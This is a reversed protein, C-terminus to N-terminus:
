FARGHLAVQTRWEMGSAAVLSGPVVGDPWWTIHGTRGARCPLTSFSMSRGVQLAMACFDM